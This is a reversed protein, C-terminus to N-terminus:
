NLKDVMRLPSKLLVSEEWKCWGSPLESKGFREISVLSQSVYGDYAHAKFYFPVIIDDEAFVDDSVILFRVEIDSPFWYLSEGSSLDIRESEIQVEKLTLEIDKSEQVPTTTMHYNGLYYGDEDILKSM